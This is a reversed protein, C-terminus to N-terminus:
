GAPPVQRRGPEQLDAHLPREGLPRRGRGVGRDQAEVWSRPALGSRCGGGHLRRVLRAPERRDPQDPGPRHPRGGLRKGCRLHRPPRGLRRGRHLGPPPPVYADNEKSSPEEAIVNVARGSCPGSRVKSTDAPAVQEAQLGSGPVKHPQSAASWVGGRATGGSRWRCLRAPLFITEAPPSRDGASPSPSARGPECPLTVWGAARTVESAFPSSAPADSTPRNEGGHVFDVPSATTRIQRSCADNQRRFDDVPSFAPSSAASSTSSRTASRGSPRAGTASPTKSRWDLYRKGPSRACTDGCGM